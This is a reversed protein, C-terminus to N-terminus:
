PNSSIEELFSRAPVVFPSAPYAALLHEFTKQAERRKKMKLYTEGLLVLAEPELGSNEYTELAYRTRAVAADFNGSGLYFRAVYLEHRALRGTVDLLMYDVDADWDTVPNEKKFRLLESYADSTAGLDREEQPPLMITDNIQLFLARCIRYQAYAVGPDLRRTQAFTKYATIAEPLQDQEFKIDAMRLEALRAYPSQAYDSRVKKFRKDAEEWDRDEFSRMAKEYAGRAEESYQLTGPRAPPADPACGSGIVIALAAAALAALLLPFRRHKVM